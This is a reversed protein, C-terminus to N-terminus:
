ASAVLRRFLQEVPNRRKVPRDPASRILAVFAAGVRTIEAASEHPEVLGAALALMRQEGDIAPGLVDPDTEAGIDILRRLTPFEVATTRWAQTVADVPDISPDREAEAQALGVRGTLKLLWRYHLAQLLEERNTFVETAEPVETFPVSGAPHRAAHDVVADLADRRRYYDNWSM